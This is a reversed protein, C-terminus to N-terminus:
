DWGHKSLSLFILIISLANERTYIENFQVMTDLGHSDSPNPLSSIPLFSDLSM